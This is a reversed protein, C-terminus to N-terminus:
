FPNLCEYQLPSVHRDRLWGVGVALLFLMELLTAADTIYYVLLNLVARLLHRANCKKVSFVLDAVYCRITDRQWRLLQKLYLSSPSVKAVLLVEDSTEFWTRWGHRVCWVTFANDDGTTVPNGLWKENLFFDYFEDNQFVSTRLASLRGSLNLVQGRNFYALASHMINRRVLNLSGFREWATLGAQIAPGVIQLGTAGGIGPDHLPHVIRALTGGSWLSRDDAIVFYPTRVRRVGEYYQRRASPKPVSHVLVRPDGIRDALRSIQPLRADITVIIVEKPGCALWRYVVDHYNTETGLTICVITVDDSVRISPRGRWSFPKLRLYGWYELLLLAGRLCRLARIIAHILHLM